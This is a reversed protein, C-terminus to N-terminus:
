TAHIMSCLRPSVYRAALLQHDLGSIGLHMCEREVVDVAENLTM